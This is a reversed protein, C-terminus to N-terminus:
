GDRRRIREHRTEPGRESRQDEASPRRAIELELDLLRKEMSQRLIPSAQPKLAALALRLEALQKKKQELNRQIPKNDSRQGEFSRM